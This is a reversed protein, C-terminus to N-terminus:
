GGRLGGRGLEDAHDRQRRVVAVVVSVIAQVSFGLVYGGQILVDHMPGRPAPLEYSMSM